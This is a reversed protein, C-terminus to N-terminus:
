VDASLDEKLMNREIVSACKYCFNYTVSRGYGNLYLTCTTDIPKRCKFCDSM